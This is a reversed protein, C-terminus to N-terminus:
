SLPTVIDITGTAAFWESDKDFGGVITGLVGAEGLVAFTRNRYEGYNHFPLAKMGSEAPSFSIHDGRKFKSGLYGVGPIIIGQGVALVIGSPLLQPKDTLIPGKPREDVVVLLLDNAPIFNLM